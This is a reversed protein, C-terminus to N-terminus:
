KCKADVLVADLKCACLLCNGLHQQSEAKWHGVYEGLTATGQPTDEAMHYVTTYKHLLGKDLFFALVARTIPGRDGEASFFAWEDSPLGLWKYMNQM